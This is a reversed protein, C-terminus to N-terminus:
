LKAYIFPTLVICAMLCVMHYVTLSFRGNMLHRLASTSQIYLAEKYIYFFGHKMNQMLQMWSALDKPITGIKKTLSVKRVGHIVIAKNVFVVNSLALLKRYMDQDENAAKKFKEDFGGVEKFTKHSICVNASWFLGGSINVPCEAIGSEMLRWDNPHIAGEFVMVKPNSQINLYYEELLTKEVVVDDDIFLLWQARAHKAGSNRNAAPGKRGGKFYRVPFNSYNKRLFDYADITNGDDSVIIEECLENFRSCNILSNLCAELLYLRDCTPIIVSFIKM